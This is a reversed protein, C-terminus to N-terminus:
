EQRERAQGEGKPRDVELRSRLVQRFIQRDIAIRLHRHQAVAAQGDHLRIHDQIIEGAACASELACGFLLAPLGSFPKGPLGVGDAIHCAHAMEASEAADIGGDHRM